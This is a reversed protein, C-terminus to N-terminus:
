VQSQVELAGLSLQCLHNAHRGSCSLATAMGVRPIMRGVDNQSPISFSVLYIQIHVLCIHMYIHIYLKIKSKEIFFFFKNKAFCKVTPSSTRWNSLYLPLVHVEPSLSKLRTAYASKMFVSIFTKIRMTVSTRDEKYVCACVSCRM